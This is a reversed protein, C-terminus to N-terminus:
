LHGGCTGIRLWSSGTWAEVEWKRFTWRLIMRGDIDSDSLYDREEPKGVLSKILREGVENTSCAGGIERNEFDLFLSTPILPIPSLLRNGFAQIM